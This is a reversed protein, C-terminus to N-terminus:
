LWINHVKVKHENNNSSLSQLNLQLKCYTVTLSTRTRSMTRLWTRTRTRTRALRTRTMIRTRTPKTKTRTRAHWTRILMVIDSQWSRTVIVPLVIDCVAHMEHLARYYLLSLGLRLAHVSTISVQNYLWWLTKGEISQYSRYFDNWGDALYKRFVKSFWCIIQTLRFIITLLCLLLYM